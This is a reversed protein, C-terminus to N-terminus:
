RLVSFDAFVAYNLIVLVLLVIGVPVALKWPRLSVAGVDQQVWAGGRRPLILSWLLMVVVLLLFVSGLFHFNNGFLIIPDAGTGPLVFYALAILLLGAIMAFNAAAAPVKKNLLGILVVALIPISYFGDMIRLFGFISSKGALLPAVLM